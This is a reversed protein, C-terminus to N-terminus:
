SWGNNPAVQWRHWLPLPGSPARGAVFVELRGDSNEGVGVPGAPEGGLDDWGSWGSPTASDQWLHWVDGDIAFTFVELRGDANRGVSPSNIQTVGPPGGLSQWSGWGGNPATQGIQWLTAFNGVVFAHLQGATDRGVVPTAPSARAPAGLSDWASWGMGGALQWLHWLAGDSGSAFVELRGDQNAGVAAWGLSVGAPAGLTGWGSWGGNPVTQWTHWLSGDTAVALVELRGDANSGVLLFHGGVGGPPADLPDWGSWATPSHPDQWIHWVTGTSMLGVRVFVELRGDANRGVAPQGMFQGPPAGLSAWGSWDTPSHPDQWVHALEPGSAGPSTAFVELRGDGNVGVAPASSDIQGGLSAWGSWGPM